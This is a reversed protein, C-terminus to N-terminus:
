GFGESEIREAPVGLREASLVLSHVMANIGCAYVDVNSPDLRAEVGSDPDTRLWQELEEDLPATVADGATHKLLSHQVYDTEGDWDTLVSERSLCPVFHFNERQAALDEFAERYPLDDEWAAGLFLWINREHGRHEDRGTEFLYDVMGKFPAVGTGTALFVIDRQSPENLVLEGYPGRVTVRDGVSMDGCLEPSLRGGPVRRVSLELEEQTPSSSLSYARSTGDYRIGIYQGALYDIDTETRLRVRVLMPKPRGYREALTSLRRVLKARGETILKDRLREWDEAGALSRGLGASDLRDNIAETVENERDYDMATVDTVRASKTVLPLDGISEHVAVHERVATDPTAEPHM